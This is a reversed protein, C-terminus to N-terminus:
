REQGGTCMASSAMGTAAEGRDGLVLKQGVCRCGGNWRTAAGDQGAAARPSVWWSSVTLSTVERRTTSLEALISAKKVQLKPRQPELGGRRLATETQVRPWSPYARVGHLLRSLPNGLSM